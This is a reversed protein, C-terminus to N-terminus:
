NLTSQLLAIFRTRTGEGEYRYRILEKPLHHISRTSEYRNLNESNLFIHIPHFNYIRLLDRNYTELINNTPMKFSVNDQWCHPLIQIGSWLQWPLISINSTGPIFTNCVRHLNKKAFIDLMRENQTLSHSRVSKAEPAINLIRDVVEELNQGNDTEGNLLKNFNPHVGIEFLSNDRLRQLSPTRHTVFWTASANFNELICKSDNIIDDHAWDIDLTIFIRNKWSNPNDHQIERITGTPISM